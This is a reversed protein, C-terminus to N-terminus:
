DIIILELCISILALLLRKKRFSIFFLIKLRDNIIDRDFPLRFERKELLNFRGIISKMKNLPFFVVYRVM